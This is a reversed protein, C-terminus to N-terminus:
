EFIPRKKKMILAIIFCIVFGFASGKLFNWFMTSISGVDLKGDLESLTKNIDEESAGFKQMMEVTMEITKEKLLVPLNPDIWNFLAYQFVTHVFSAIIYVLFGAFLAESLSIFGEQGTKVERIGMVIVAILVALGLFGAWMNVLLTSDIAYMVISYLIIVLGGILGWKLSSSKFNSVVRADNSKQTNEM